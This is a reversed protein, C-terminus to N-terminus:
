VARFFYVDGGYGTTLIIDGPRLLTDCSRPEILRVACIEEDEPNEGIEEALDQIESWELPESDWNVNLGEREAIELWERTATFIHKLTRATM